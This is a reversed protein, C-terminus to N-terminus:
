WKGVNIRRLQHSLHERSDVQWTLFLQKDCLRVSHLTFSKKCYAKVITLTLSNDFVVRMCSRRFTILYQLCTHMGLKLKPGREVNLVNSSSCIRVMILIINHCKRLAISPASLSAKRRPFGTTNKSTDIPPAGTPRRRRSSNLFSQGRM